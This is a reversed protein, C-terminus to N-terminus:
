EVKDQMAILRNLQSDTLLHKRYLQKLIGAKVAKVFTKEAEAPLKIQEGTNM